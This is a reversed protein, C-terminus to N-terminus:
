NKQLPSLILIRIPSFMLRYFTIYAISTTCIIKVAKCKDFKIHNNIKRSINPYINTTKSCLFLKNVELTGMEM